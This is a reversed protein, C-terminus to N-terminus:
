FDYEVPFFRKLPQKYLYLVDCVGTIGMFSFVGVSLLTEAVVDPLACIWPVDAAVGRREFIPAAIAPFRHMSAAVIKQPTFTDNVFASIGSQIVASPIMTTLSTPPHTSIHSADSNRFSLGMARCSQSFRM